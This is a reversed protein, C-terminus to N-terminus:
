RGLLVLLAPSVTLLLGVLVAFVTTRRDNNHLLARVVLVLGATVLVAAALAVVPLDRWLYRFGVWLAAGGLAGVIWQALVAAWAQGHSATRDRRPGSGGDLPEDLAEDEAADDTDAPVGPVGLGAPHDDDLDFPPAPPASDGRRRATRQRHWEEAGVPAAGVMTSPGGDDTDALPRPLEIPGTHGPDLTTAREGRLRPMQDTPRDRRLEPQRAIRPPSGSRRMDLRAAPAARVPHRLPPFPGTPPQELRPREPYAHRDTVPAGGNEAYLPEGLEGLEAERRRRRRGTSANGHEALLEAVTRQRPHDIESSM